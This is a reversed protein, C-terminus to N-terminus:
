PRDLDRSPLGVLRDVRRSDRLLETRSCLPFRSEVACPTPALPASYWRTPTSAGTPNWGTGSSSPRHCKGAEVIADDGLAVRSSSRSTVRPTVLGIARVGDHGGLIQSRPSRSTSAGETTNSPAPNPQPKSPELEALVADGPSSASM